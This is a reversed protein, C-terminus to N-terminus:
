LNSPHPQCISSKSWAMLAVSANALVLLGSLYPSWGMYGLGKKTVILVNIKCYGWFKLWKTLKEVSGLYFFRRIPSFEGLRTVWAWKIVVHYTPCLTFLCKELLLQRKRGINKMNLHIWSKKVFSFIKLVYTVNTVYLVYIFCILCIHCRDRRLSCFTALLHGQLQTATETYSNCVLCVYSCM